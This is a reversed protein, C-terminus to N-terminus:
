QWDYVVVTWAIGDPGTYEFVPIFGIAKHANMSRKNRTAIESIAFDYTDKFQEKYAAYIKKFIGKGRYDKDICAQGIILYHYASILKGEYNIEDFLKLLPALMPFDKTILPDLALVYAIVRDNERAIISPEVEHMRKLDALSYAMTVFGEDGEVEDPVHIALNSELLNLIGRIDEDNRVTSYEIM